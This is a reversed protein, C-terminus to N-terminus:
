SIPQPVYAAESFSASGVDAMYGGEMVCVPDSSLYTNTPTGNDKKGHQTTTNSNTMAVVTGSATKM